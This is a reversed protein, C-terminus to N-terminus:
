DDGNDRSWELVPPLLLKKKIYANRCSAQLIICGTGQHKDGLWPRAWRTYSILASDRDLFHQSIQIHKLM